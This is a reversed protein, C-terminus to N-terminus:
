KFLKGLLGKKKNHDTTAFQEVVKKSIEQYAKYVPNNQNEKQTMYPIGEDSGVRLSQELPISGLKETGLETLKAPDIGNGFIFHEKDCSDCIFSSMNEVLGLMNLNLKKFMNFGKVADLLAIDQPTTIIIGGDVNANQMMSLQIDGTGPPLDILLYDLEGWNVDFLFQNLVGGLMPGRWIVPDSEEIFLGFSMFKVGHAQIPLIKKNEDAQPKSKRHGMLMPVSPGYIDADILGVKFGQNALTVALNVSFTSKGVGGKGSGIAIINGVGEIDKKPQPKAHGVNLQANKDSPEIPASNQSDSQSLVFIKDPKAETSLANIIEKEITRKAEVSIEDRKYKIFINQDTKEARVIRNEDALSKDTLPNKIHSIKTLLNQDIM